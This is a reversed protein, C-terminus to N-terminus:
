PEYLGLQCSYKFKTMKKMSVCVRDSNIKRIILM